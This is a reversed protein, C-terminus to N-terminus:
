YTIQRRQSQCRERGEATDSCFKALGSHSAVIVAPISVVIPLSCFNSNSEYVTKELLTASILTETALSKQTDFGGEGRLSCTIKTYNTFGKFCAM